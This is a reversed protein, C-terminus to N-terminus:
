SRDHSLRVRKGILWGSVTMYEYNVILVYRSPVISIKRPKSNCSESDLVIFIYAHM